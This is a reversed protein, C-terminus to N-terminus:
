ITIYDKIKNFLTESIGNVNMIDNITNFNGNVTRYEIISNAKAEGIGSLKSLEEISATNINVLDNNSDINSNLCADNNIKECVCPTEIYIIDSKKAEEIESDSYIVIVDGDKLVKSLNVFRTNANELLGGSANILDIVRSGNDLEYVGENIVSGKIDVFIKSQIEEDIIEEKVIEQIPKENDKEEYNTYLYFVIIFAICAIVIIIYMNIRNRHLSYYEKAKELM